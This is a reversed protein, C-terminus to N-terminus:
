GRRRVKRSRDGPKRRGKREFRNGGRQPSTHEIGLRIRAACSKCSSQMAYRHGGLEVLSGRPFDKGCFNCHEAKQEEAKKGETM